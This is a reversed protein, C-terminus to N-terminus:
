SILCYKNQILEESKEYQVLKRLYYNGFCLKQVVTVVKLLVEEISYIISDHRRIYKTTETSLMELPQTM